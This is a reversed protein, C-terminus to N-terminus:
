TQVGVPIGSEPIELIDATGSDFVTQAMGVHNTDLDYVVYASRLFTDGMITPLNDSAAASYIGFLCMEVGNVAGLDQLVLEAIGVNVTPGTIPNSFHFNISLDSSAASCPIIINGSTATSPYYQAGMASIISDALPKQLVTLTTGTDLVANEFYGSATQVTRTSGQLTAVRSLEVTPQNYSVSGDSNTTGGVVPMKLLPAVFKALNLGGFLITGSAASLEDLWISYSNSAIIGQAALNHNITPYSAPFGIGLVGESIGTGSTGLVALQSTVAQGGIHVTDYFWDGTVSGGDGFGETTSQDTDDFTSSKSSDFSGLVSCPILTSSCISSGTSPVVLGRSGTDLQLAQPQGPTGMTINIWYLSRDPKQTLISNFQRKSLTENTGLITGNTALQPKWIDAMVVRQASAALAMCIMVVVNITHM